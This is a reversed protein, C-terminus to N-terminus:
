GDPEVDQEHKGILSKQKGAIFLGALTSRNWGLSTSFAMVGILKEPFRAQEFGATIRNEFASLM